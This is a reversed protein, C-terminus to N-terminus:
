TANGIFPWGVRGASNRPCHVPVKLITQVCKGVVKSENSKANTAKYSV